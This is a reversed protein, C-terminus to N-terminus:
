HTDRPAQQKLMQKAAASDPTVNSIAVQAKNKYGSVVMDDGDMLASFGDSAM